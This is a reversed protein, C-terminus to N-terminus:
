LKGKGQSKMVHIFESKDITKDNNTDAAKIM